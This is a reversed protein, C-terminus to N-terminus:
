DLLGPHVQFGELDRQDLSDWKELIEQKAQNVMKVQNGQLARLDEKALVVWIDLSALMELLDKDELKVLHVAQGLLDEQELKEGQAM